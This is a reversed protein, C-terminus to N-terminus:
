APFLYRTMRSLGGFDRAPSRVTGTGGKIISSRTLWMAEQESPPPSRTHVEAEPEGSPSVFKRDRIQRGAVTAAPRLPRRMWSRQWVHTAIHLREGADGRAAAFHAPREFGASTSPTYPPTKSSSLLDTM